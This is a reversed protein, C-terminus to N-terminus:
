QKSGSRPGSITTLTVEPDADIQKDRFLVDRLKKQSFLLTQDLYHPSAPDRSESTTLLAQVSPGSKTMEAVMIFSSGKNCLYGETTLGTSADVIEAQAPEPLLTTNINGKGYFSVVNAAGELEQGGPVPIRQDGKKTFQADGLTATPDLHAKQLSLVAKAIAVLIPDPGDVPKQVLTNPTMVPHYPDFPVAYLAGDTQVDSFKMQGLFERWVLAGPTTLDARGSWAALAGCAQHVDVTAGDVQVETVGQCREVVADRLQEAVIERDDFLAAIVEDRTFKGDEGSAGDPAVETLLELNMRSRPILPALTPGYLFSYDVLFVAPNTAWPADNANMVFDTRALGPAQDVPVLGDAHPESSPVWEDRSTSGDLLTAGYKALLQTLPDKVLAEQYALTADKSLKPVRSGDLLLADGNDDAAMTYVWPVAHITSHLHALEGVSQAQDIRFWQEVLRVDGENADRLAFANTKTWGLGPGQVVLGYDTRWITRSQKALAGDAGLVDISVEHSQMKHPTGDVVYSTPDDPSLTLRYVTLHQSPSVTHTWAVHDNFGIQITPSGLIAAGYVDMVGPLTLHAEHWHIEGEWPFHPNALVIGNGSATRDRGLAWGNSGFGPHALDFAVEEQPAPPPSPSDGPPAAKGIYGLFAVASGRLALDLTYAFLDVATIPEVWAAGACPAPLRATTTESLWVNYGDAYGQVLDRVEKPQKPLEAAATEELGLALYAFDSDVNADKDGPGFTAARRSKVKLIQDALYCGYDQAAAYGVGYGLSGIDYALIHPVGYSTRRVYAHYDGDAGCGVTAAATVLSLSALALSRMAM